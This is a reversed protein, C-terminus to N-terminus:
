AVRPVPDDESTSQDESQLSQWSQMFERRKQSIRGPSVHFRKAVAKTTAGHSLATAIQRDRISLSAFWAEFDIRAAATEAPGAHRDEVILERWQKDNSEANNISEGRIGQKRQAYPSLVDRCNLKEGVRRGQWYQAIAFRALVTPYASDVKGRQYLRHYALMANVVVEQIAEARAEADLHYFASRASKKIAPVMAIFGAHWDSGVTPKSTTKTLAIM